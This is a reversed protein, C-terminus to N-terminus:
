GRKSAKRSGRKGKVRSRPKKKARQGTPPLGQREVLREHEARYKGGPAFPGKGEGAMGWYVDEAKRKGYRAVLDAMLSAAIPM